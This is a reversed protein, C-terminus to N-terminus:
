VAKKKRMRGKRHGRGFWGGQVATTESPIETDGTGNKQGFSPAIVERSHSNVEEPKLPTALSFIPDETRNYSPVHINLEEMLLSMIDDCKGHIKLVALDDKPTWQLNVIYLKPRKTSPRDM